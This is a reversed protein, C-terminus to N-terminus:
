VNAPREITLCSVYRVTIMRHNVSKISWMCVSRRFSLDCHLPSTKVMKRNRTMGSESCESNFIPTEAVKFHFFNEPSPGRLGAKNQVCTFDARPFDSSTRLFFFFCPCSFCPLFIFALVGLLSVSIYSSLLSNALKLQVLLCTSCWLSYRLADGWDAGRVVKYNFTDKWEFVWLLGNVM